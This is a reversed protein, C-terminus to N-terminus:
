RVGLGGFIPAPFGRMQVAGIDLYGTSGGLLAGPYGAHKAPSGAKLTFDGSAPDNLLPDSTLETSNATLGSLNAGGGGGSHFFINYAHLSIHEVTGASEVNFEGAANGNESFINNILKVNILAADLGLGSNGSGYITNSIITTLHDSDVPTGGTLSIAEAGCTDFVNFLVASSAGTNANRFGRSGVDHIYCGIVADRNASDWANVDVGSVESAFLTAGGDAMDVGHDGADNIRIDWLRWGADTVVGDNTAGQQTITLNQLIWNDQLNSDIVPLDGSTIMSPHDVGSKGKVTIAGNTTDGAARCTLITAASSAISDGLEVIWGAALAGEISAPTWIFRGGIAWASSVVGTPAVSVTVTKLVDDVATIKFIKQNSNSADNLHITASGDTAVGSLDPSGDLSVVAAAVTAAAGSLNAADQDSSGSNTAAGTTKVYITPLAM